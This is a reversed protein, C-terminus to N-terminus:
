CGRAREAYKQSEVGNDHKNIKALFLAYQILAQGYMVDLYPCNELNDIIEEWLMKIENVTPDHQDVEKKRANHLHQMVFVKTFKFMVNDTKEKLARDICVLAEQFSSGSYGSNAISFAKEAMVEPIDRDERVGLIRKVETFKKVILDQASSDSSGEKWTLWALCGLGVIKEDETKTNELAKNFYYRAEVFSEKQTKYFGMLNYSEVETGHITQEIHEELNEINMQVTRRANQLRLQDWTFHCPLSSLMQYINYKAM